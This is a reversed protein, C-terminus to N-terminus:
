APRPWWGCRTTSRSRSAGPPWAARGAGRVAAAPGPRPGHRHPRRRHRRADAAPVPGPAREGAGARPRARRRGPRHRRGPHRRLEGARRRRRAGPSISVQNWFATGDARYNLLTERIPEAARLAARIRDIAERDTDPGQLFRCNRGLVQDAPYGTTREFAPNVWVLPDDDANPDSITFSLDTAIVARNHMDATGDRQADRVRCRQGRAAGAARARAPGRAALQRGAHRGACAGRPHQRHAPVRHAVLVQTSQARESGPAREARRQVMVGRAARAAPSPRCPTPGPSRSATSVSWAPTRAGATSRSPCSGTRAADGPRGPRRARREDHAPRGAPRRRGGRRQRHPSGDRRRRGRARGRGGVLPGAARVDSEEGKM